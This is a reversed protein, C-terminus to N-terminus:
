KKKAAGSSSYPIPTDFFVRYGKQKYKEEEETEQQSKEWALNLGHELAEDDTSGERRDFSTKVRKFYLFKYSLYDEREKAPLFNNKYGESAKFVEQAQLFAVCSDCNGLKNCAQFKQCYDIGAATETLLKRCIFRSDPSSQYHWGISQETNHLVNELMSNVDKNQRDINIKKVDNIDIELKQAEEKIFEKLRIRIIHCDYKRLPISKSQMELEARMKAHNINEDIDQLQMNNKSLNIRHFLTEIDNSNNIRSLSKLM